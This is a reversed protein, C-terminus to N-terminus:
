SMFLSSSFFFRGASAHRKTVFIHFIHFIYLYHFTFSFLSHSSLTSIFVDSLSYLNQPLVRFSILSHLAISPQTLTFTLLTRSSSSTPQGFPPSAQLFLTPATSPLPPVPYHHDHIHNLNGQYCSDAHYLNNIVTFKIPYQTFSTWRAYYLYFAQTM